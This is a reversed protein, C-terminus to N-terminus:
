SECQVASEGSQNDCSDSGGGGDFTDTGPGGLLTDAGNKGKLTDDGALGTLVNDGNDGILTDDFLSGALDEVGTLSDHAADGGNFTGDNLNINVAVPSLVYTATDEGDGGVITDAGAMGAFVNDDSDGILTDDFASGVAGEISTITDGQADGGGTADLSLDVTVAAPSTRYDAVDTDPGGDLMDAGGGGSLDDDGALGSVTNPGGDGSLTDDFPSGQLNEAGVWTDGTADGGSAEGTGLNVDVGQHANSYGITDTGDNGTMADAGQGGLLLDDGSGGFLVDDGGQGELTDNGGEGCIVDDAFTGILVDNGSTGVITCDTSDKVYIDPNTDPDAPDLNTAESDFATLRGEGSISLNSGLTQNGKVGSATETVLRIDGTSLNKEYVDWDSSTDAPDLNTATSDFVVHKGDGSLAPNISEGNSPVGTASTSALQIDGTTLNKVYIDPNEVRDAPDLNTANSIFALKRGNGSLSPSTSPLNGKTGNASRSALFIKGTAIVKVFVDGLRDPDAKLLNDAVSDFAVRKGDASISPDASRFDGKVGSASTSALTLDGTTLDKVYVDDFGDRDRIDLTTALSQFAVGSADRSLSASESDANGKTGGQTTSAL